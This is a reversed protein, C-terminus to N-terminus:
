FVYPIWRWRVKGAYEEWQEGFQEKLIRDEERSRWAMSLTVYVTLGAYIGVLTKGVPTQLVGCERMWSGAVAHMLGLGVLSFAGSIYSPHRVIGYWGDQVIQHGDRISVEFTFFRGMTQYCQYRVAAGLTGVAWSALFAGTCAIRRTLSQPGPVLATLVMQSLPHDPFRGAVIVAAELMPAVCSLTKLAISHIHVTASFWREFPKVDQHRDKTSVKPQPPTLIVYGSLLGTFLLPIKVLSM